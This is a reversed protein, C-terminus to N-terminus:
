SLMRTLEQIDDLRELSGVVEILSEIRDPAIVPSSLSRFKGAIKSFNMPIEASGKAFDIWVEFRQGNKLFIEV